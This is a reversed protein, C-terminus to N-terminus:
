NGYNNIIALFKVIMDEVPQDLRNSALEYFCERDKYLEIIPQTQNNYVEIREKIVEPTDDHRKVLKSNCVDCIEDNKPILTGVLNYIAGCEPCVRRNSLRKIILESPITLNFIYSISLNLQDFLQDLMKAQTITRPVGDFIFGEQADDMQIRNKLIDIIIDDPLLKGETVLDEAKKGVGTGKEITERIMEGTSIHPINFKESLRVAYTGKGAGPPGIMIIILNQSDSM